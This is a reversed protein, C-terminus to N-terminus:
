VCVCTMYPPDVDMSKSTCDHRQTSLALRPTLLLEPTHEVGDLIANHTTYVTPLLHNLNKVSSGMTNYLHLPM